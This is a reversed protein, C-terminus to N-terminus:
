EPAGPQIIYQGKFKVTYGYTSLKIGGKDKYWSAQIDLTAYSRFLEPHTCHVRVLKLACDQELNKEM